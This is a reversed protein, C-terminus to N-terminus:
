LPPAPFHRIKEGLRMQNVRSNRGTIQRGQPLWLKERILLRRAIQLLNFDYGLVPYLTQLAKRLLGAPDSFIGNADAESISLQMALCAISKSREDKANILELLDQDLEVPARTQASIGTLPKGFCKRCVLPYSDSQLDMAGAWNPMPQRCKACLIVTM